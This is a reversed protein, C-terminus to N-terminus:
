LSELLAFGRYEDRCRECTRLHAFMNRDAASSTKGEFHAEVDAHRGLFSM